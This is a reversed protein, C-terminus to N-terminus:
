SCRQPGAPNSGDALVSAIDITFAPTPIIRFVAMNNTCGDSGEVYAVLIVQDTVGDFYKWAISISSNDCYTLTIIALQLLAMVM